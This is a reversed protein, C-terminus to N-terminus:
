SQEIWGSIVPVTVTPQIGPIPGDAADAMEVGRTWRRIRGGLGIILGSTQPVSAIWGLDEAGAVVATTAWLDADALGEAIVTASLAGSAPEGTRPDLIHAGREAIGSTAVAGDVVEVTAVLSGPRAPDAIGVRWIWDSRPASALQMDGGANLGAAIVADPPIRPDRRVPDLLPALWARHAREVAWGKVYGTPDFWGRWHASFRGGTAIEAADCALSVERIRPDADAESLEGRHMRSIESDDRYTSFLRDIERLDAMCGDLQEAVIGDLPRDPDTRPKRDAPSSRLVVQASVVTGMIEAFRTIRRIEDAGSQPSM